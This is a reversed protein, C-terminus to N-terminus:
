VCFSNYEKPYERESNNPEPINKIKTPTTELSPFFEVGVVYWWLIAGLIAGIAMHGFNADHISMYGHWNQEQLM